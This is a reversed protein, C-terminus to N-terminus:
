DSGATLWSSANMQSSEFAPDRTGALLERREDSLEWLVENQRSDPIQQWLILADDLPLSELLKSNEEISLQSSLNHLEAFHQNQLLANVV